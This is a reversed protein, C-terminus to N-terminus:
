FGPRIMVKESNHKILVKWMKNVLNKLMIELCNLSTGKKDVDQVKLLVDKPDNVLLEYHSQGYYASTSTSHAPSHEFVKVLDSFFWRSNSQKTRRRQNDCFLYMDFPNSKLNTLNVSSSTTKDPHITVLEAWLIIHVKSYFAGEHDGGGSFDELALWYPVYNEGFEPINPRKVAGHYMTDTKKLRPLKDWESIRRYVDERLYRIQKTLTVVVAPIIRIDSEVYNSLFTLFDQNAIFDM